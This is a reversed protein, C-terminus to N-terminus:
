SFLGLYDGQVRKHVLGKYYEVYDDRSQMFVNDFGPALNRIFAREQNVVGAQGRRVFYPEFKDFFYNLERRVILQMNIDKQLVGLYYERLNKLFGRPVINLGFLYRFFHPNKCHFIITSMGKSHVYRMDAQGISDGEKIITHTFDLDEYGLFYTEDYGDLRFFDQKKIFLPVNKANMVRSSLIHDIEPTVATYGENLLATCKSIWRQDLVICDDHFIAIYEGRAKRAGNNYAKSVCGFESPVITFNRFTDLDAFLGNYVILIEIETGKSNNIISPILQNKVFIDNATLVIICSLLPTRSNDFVEFDVEKFFQYGNLMSFLSGTAREIYREKGWIGLICDESEETISFDIMSKLELACKIVHEIHYFSSPFRIRISEHSREIKLM